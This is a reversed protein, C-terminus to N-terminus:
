RHPDCTLPACVCVRFTTSLCLPLQHNQTQVWAPWEFCVFVFCFLFWIKGFNRIWIKAGGFVLKCNSNTKATSFSHRKLVTYPKMSLIRTRTKTPRRPLLHIRSKNTGVLAVRFFATKRKCGCLGDFVILFLFSSIRNKRFHRLWLNVTLTM